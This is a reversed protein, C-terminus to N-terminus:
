ISEVAEATLRVDPGTLTLAGAVGRFTVAGAERQVADVVFPGASPLEDLTAAGTWSTELAGDAVIRAVHGPVDVPVTRGRGLLRRRHVLLAAPFLVEPVPRDDLVLRLESLDLARGELVSPDEITWPEFQGEIRWDEAILGEVLPRSEDTGPLPLLTAWNEPDFTVPGRPGIEVRAHVCRGRREDWWPTLAFAARLTATNGDTPLFLDAEHEVVTRWARDLRSSEFRWVEGDVTDVLTFLGNSDWDRLRDLGWNSLRWAVDILWDPRIPPIGRPSIVHREDSM